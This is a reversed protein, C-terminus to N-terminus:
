KGCVAGSRPPGTGGNGHERHFVQDVSNQEAAGQQGGGGKGIFRGLHGQALLQEGRGRGGARQAVRELVRTGLAGDAGHEVLELGVGRAHRV